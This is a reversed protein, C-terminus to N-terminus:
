GSRTARADGMTEVPLRRAMRKVLPNATVGHAIVSLLVTWGAAAMMTDNGPLKEDLILVAFVITALGRPGFWGVFLKDATSMRTGILCLFVPLMRIITLSLVAYLLAPWTLRDILRAVVIGGFIVWTLLALAEGTHEAGRLLEKKHTEGLGSLLLGGVFCAIFGSGGAAQAAAFCAAALAVIPIEVWHESIWGRREAFRLMVTTLWTLVLGVILGIGIEEIVVRAVHLITGGEIQTGVALGLLLVVIPVCIGDNLGSEINLSERIVPPVTQNTVVPKGLAADTPALIAALLAIELTALSPFVIAAVFFGLVITLPLGILLLREPVRLNRRVIGFDANAADTFLVMALTLEALVRLGEGTINMRLVSLGDPGLAFGVATFIIPGSIWSREVRGAVASYILLFAALLAANQYM